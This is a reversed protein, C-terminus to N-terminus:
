FKIVNLQEDSNNIDQIEKSERVIHTDIEIRTFIFVSVPDGCLVWNLISFTYLCEQKCLYARNNTQEGDMDVWCM